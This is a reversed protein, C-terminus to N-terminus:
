GPRTAAGPRRGDVGTSGLEVEVRAVGLQPGTYFGYCAWVRGIQYLIM